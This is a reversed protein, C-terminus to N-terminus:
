RILTITGKNTVSYDDIFVVKFVYVYEGPLVFEGRYKGDWQFNIDTSEFVKEGWRDYVEASCYLWTKKNGFAEWYDNVGDNNPTFANPVYLQHQPIVTISIQTSAKCGSDTSATIVYDTTTFPSAQPALCDSCSLGLSPTWNYSANGAGNNKVELGLQIIDGQNITATDPVGTITFASDNAVVFGTDVSCGRSDTVTVSDIGPSLNTVASTTAGNSWLYQYGPSGGSVSLSISGNQLPTCLVNTKTAHYTIPNNVGVTFSASTTCSNADTVTVTYTGVPVGTLPDSTSGQSWHYSYGPVGGTDIFSIAGNSDGACSVLTVSDSLLGIAGPQTVIINADIYQCGNADTLTDTYTGASLGTADASTSGNSWSNSFPQTGGSPTVNISGNSGGFCTVNVPTNAASIQTAQTITVTGTAPCGNADAITYTYSGASVGTPNLGTLGGTWTVSGYPTTGGSPTLTITGDSGGFCSVNTQTAAVTFASAPQGINVTGTAPCGNADAITYTYSGAALGTPNLGSAGGTWTPTGYPTTGGSPTLTISGTSGGFCLVDVETSTVTFASTPQTITVTGTTSCNNADAITYTYSGAAVGTPNMGTLGGTWTVAGYPTTGGSPTLTITGDSGGFCSVNTQTAAITFAALPQTITVTGSAPCGSADSISYTYSGAGLGTPTLGTAGPTGTWTVGSYPMVGGSPSLTITGDSGGFCSVNTQTSTVTLGTAPQTITVTGTQSCGNADAITYTYSGAPVNTPNLGTLGGTWTPAGYPTTGGSPTLTITGTATNYCSINTQTSTVTFATAPQTITVTGSQTCGNADAINYTYSGAPVGTPNLGTLGGTWTPAGYPTTGGSPTLTITGDSGGFCSVNTQTAAVAFASAPQTITVTGTQPCGNADNITYTYTGAAVNTPNLGTLGGTWTVAGYPTTGGSPTLTITGDSGGFCSVNTQTATVSFASAPQTIIVSGTVLCGNNDSDGYSYTGAALNNRVDGIFLDLWEATAYPTTGGSPTLTISGTSAGFCLVNTQAVAVTFASAPQTITVTGTAPCGNADAINYTYSGAAVNTPTLGTLGGTWTVAGYPTTGGSPTLTISGTTGGFCKVNTQTVAVAFASAPQTITVTGTQTCGNADAVTYTYSGAAVNTPTLGAIGGTWTVAGYPTTGGSLTLTITGNSGGFCSVNTQAVGVNFASAPQTITVTGTVLCGNNDSDGYSYTGAALNNRVDGIFGDLWEATAYPTTGGSPTLTISGTSAGFCKVNVQAVGVAFASAPQTITVTGTQPCGNGDAINYTYSGAAVNTPTLGTLGGTWTVAAYPTTGGSPTLTISGTAGGFCKVNTQTAAVSFASAPQTITM